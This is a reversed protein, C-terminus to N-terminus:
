EYKRYKGQGLCQGALQEYKLTYVVNSKYKANKKKIVKSM